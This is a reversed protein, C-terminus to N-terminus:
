RNGSAVRAGSTTDPVVFCSVFVCLSVGSLVVWMSGGHSAKRMGKQLAQEETLGVSSIEPITWLTLPPGTEAQFISEAGERRLQESTRHAGAPSEAEAAFFPDDM